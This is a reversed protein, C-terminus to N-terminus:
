PGSYDRGGGPPVTKTDGRTITTGGTPLETFPPGVTPPAVIADYSGGALIQSTSKGASKATEALLMETRNMVLGVSADKALDSTARNVFPKLAPVAASLAAMIEKNAAPVAKAVANAITAYKTPMAKCLAVVIKVAQDPATSAAATAIESLSKPQLVAAKAAAAPAAEPTQRAIAGVVAVASAPHVDLAAAVVSAATADRDEVKAQSVLQAAKAPMEIASEAKLTKRITAVEPSTAACIVSAGMALITIVVISRKPHASKM